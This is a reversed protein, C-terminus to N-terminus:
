PNQMYAQSSKKHFPEPPLLFHATYSVPAYEKEKVEQDFPVGAKRKM